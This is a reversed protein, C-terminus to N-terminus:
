YYIIFLNSHKARHVVVWPCVPHIPIIRFADQIDAKAVLCGQGTQRTIAVCDDLLEYHVESHLKAIHSNVSNDKPFSLDLILCFQGPVKKPVIGLPSLM